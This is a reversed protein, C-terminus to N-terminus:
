APHCAALRNEMGELLHLEEPLELEQEPHLQEMGEQEALLELLLHCRLHDGMRLSSAHLFIVFLMRFPKNGCDKRISKKKLQVEM